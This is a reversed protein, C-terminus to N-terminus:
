WCGSWHLSKQIHMLKSIASSISSVWIFLSWVVYKRLSRCLITALRFHKVMAFLFSSVTCPFIWLAIMCRSYAGMDGKKGVRSYFWQQILKFMVNYRDQVFVLYNIKIHICQYSQCRHICPYQLKLRNNKCILFIICGKNFTCGINQYHQIQLPDRCTGYLTM